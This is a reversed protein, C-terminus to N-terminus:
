DTVSAPRRDSSFMLVIATVTLLVSVAVLAKVFPSVDVFFAPVATLATVVLTGAAVRLAARSGIRWAVVVAVLGVVGLVTGAWLVVPPPGVPGDPQPGFASAINVLSLLGALTLGARQRGTSTTTPAATMTSM